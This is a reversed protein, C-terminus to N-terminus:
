GLKSPAGHGKEELGLAAWTTGLIVEPFFLGQKDNLFARIDEVHDNIADRQFNEDAVSADALEGFPAFGRFSIFTGFAREVRGSLYM